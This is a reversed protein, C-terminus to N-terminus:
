PFLVGGLAHVIGNSAPLDTQVLTAPPMVNLGSATFSGSQQAPAPNKLTVVQGPQADVLITAGNQTKLQRPQGTLQALTFAQGPVIYYQVFARLRVPDRSEGSIGGGTGQNTLDDIMAAPAGLFAGDTPAFVTYPGAGKFEDSLGARGILEIFRNFRGDAAMADMVNRLQARAALPALALGGALMFVGRRDIQTM